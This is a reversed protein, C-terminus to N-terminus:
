VITLCGACFGFGAALNGPGTGANWVLVIRPGTPADPAVTVSLELQNESIVTISNVGIGYPGFATLTARAGPLFGRGTLSMTATEGRALTAPTVADVEPTVVARVFIDFTADRDNRTLNSANSHFTVYRGDASIQGVASTGNAEHGLLDVSSRITSATVRDRVFVDSTGNNDDLVMDDDGSFYAVYRGDASISPSTGSARAPDGDVPISIRTTSNAIRDRVFVDARGNADGAVLDGGSSCFAVYRGDASISQGDVGCTFDSPGDADGGGADASVRTTEGLKMDRLFVDGFGNGDGAVLDSADSWFAIYRGDASIASPVFVPSSGSPGNSDGGGEDVSVRTTTASDLDRVFVDDVGNGDSSALDSASSAFVVHRGDGSIWAHRTGANPAAGNTDVTVRTNTGTQRDHVYIDESGDTDGPALDNASSAFAVYRGDGSISPFFSEGDAGGGNMDLSVRTTTMTLLDRVFVDNVGNDDGPVLDNAPSWFTVYRGDASISPNFSM